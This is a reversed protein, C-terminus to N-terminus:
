RIPPCKVKNRIIYSITIQTFFYSDKRNTGRYSSSKSLVQEHYAEPFAPGGLGAAQGFIEHRPKGTLADYGEDARYSLPNTNYHDAGVDDLYDSLTLRFGGEVGIIWNESIVAKAGVVIPFVPVFNSYSKDTTRNYTDRLSVWSQLQIKGNDSIEKITYNNNQGKDQISERAKPNNTVIGIGVGVYPSWELKKSKRVVNMPLINYYGMASLEMIDNRFHLNRIRNSGKTTAGTGGYTADNGFLRAHTLSMGASLRPTFQRQFQVTANWRVNSYLAHYFTRYPSLDGFYHSTGAGIGFTSYREDKSKFSNTQQGLVVAPTGALLGWLLIKKLHMASTFNPM